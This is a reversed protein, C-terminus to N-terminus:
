EEEEENDVNNDVNDVNNTANQLQEQNQQLILDNKELMEKEEDDRRKQEKEPNDIWPNIEDRTQQSLEDKMKVLNDFISDEDIMLDRDLTFTIPIEQLQEFTGFGGRWALWKDFFYKLNKMMVRFETEYGNAWQNLCEYFARMAKGSPNTGLQITTLDVTNTNDQIDKKIIELQQAIADINADVKEFHANGGADVAMIRSNQLMKRARTLEGMEASMEEVILVADIDDILSDIGKSKLMDYNDIDSKCENLLPLEDEDGKFFIFPVREWSVGEGTSKVMHSEQITIRDATDESLEYETGPDPALAGNGEGLSYDIFRELIQRDWFEVKRIETPAQNNYEIIIYDRVIADLETHATDKWAPYITEPIMDIIQLQGTEDIWPYLWGIGKNIGDRGCRKIVKRREDNLFNEWEEKYKDSDCSITFPKALAFDLKQKVSKRYQATKSKVNSLTDNLIINGAEDQYSRTKNDIATNEVKYYKDAQIMDKIIKSDRWENLINQTIERNITDKAGYEIAANILDMQSVQM